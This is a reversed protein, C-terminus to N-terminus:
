EGKLLHYVNKFADKVALNEDFLGCYPGNMRYSYDAEDLTPIDTIGWISVAKLPKNVNEENVAIYAEKFLKEYFEGHAQQTADDDQYNRVALETVQVDVGLDAFKEIATKVRTIDSENMCGNQSGFGGIYSQMGVGDCLKVYGGNGDSVYSNISTVLNCIADRKADYFTNYDNYYLDINISPDTEKMEEVVEHAYKFALEVYDSGVHDYFLNTADGRKIRVHREDDAEYDGSSDGVAENVVDWCYIVGPYEEEFHTLVQEIYNQMRAKVVETSAYENSSDYGVRFFWDNMDADWVLVHGRLGLGNDEAYQAIIDANTFNLKPMSSEDTYASKSASQDLMSYAKMENAATISNFHYKMLNSYTSDKVKTPNMVTGLKFGYDEALTYLPEYNTTADTIDRTDKILKISHITITATEPLSATGSNTNYKVGFGYIDSGVPIDYTIEKETTGASPYAIDSRGSWYSTGTYCLLTIPVEETASVTFTVQSYGSLDVATKDSNLYFAVGGGSSGNGATFTVSGDDNYTPGSSIVGSGLFTDASLTMAETVPAPTATPAPTPTATPAPTATSDYEFTLSTLVATATQTGDEGIDSNTMIAYGGLTKSKAEDTVETTFTGSARNYRTMGSIEAYSSDLFKFSVSNPDGTVSITAHIATVNSLSVPTELAFNAQSYRTTETFTVTASGVEVTAAVTSNSTSRVTSGVIQNESIIPAPTPTATTAAAPTTTPVATTAPAVTTGPTTTPAKTPATTVTPAKTPATTAAPVKTPAVTTGPTIVPATTPAVETTPVPTVNGCGGDGGTSTPFSAVPAPTETSSPTSAMPNGDTPAPVSSTEPTESGNAGAEATTTANVVKIKCNLKYTKKKLRVKVTLKTSGVKKGKIKLATKGSKKVQVIKKKKVKWTIKAGKARKIKLKKTKGKVITLKKKSLVPKKAAAESTGSFSGLVLSFLCLLAIGRRHTSMNRRM